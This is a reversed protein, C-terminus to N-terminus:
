FHVQIIENISKFPKIIDFHYQSPVRRTTSQLCTIAFKVDRIALFSRLSIVLFHM